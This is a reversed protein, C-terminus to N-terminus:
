NIIRGSARTRPSRFEITTRSIFLNSYRGSAIVRGRGRCPVDLSSHAETIPERLPRENYTFSVWYIRSGVESPLRAFSFLILTSLAMIGVHDFTSCLKIPNWHIRHSLNEWTKQMWLFHSRFKQRRENFKISWTAFKWYGSGLFIWWITHVVNATVTPEPLRLVKFAICNPVSILAVRSSSRRGENKKIWSNHSM